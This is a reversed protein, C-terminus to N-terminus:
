NGRYSLTQIPSDMDAFVDMWISGAGFAEFHPEIQVEQNSPPNLNFAMAWIM